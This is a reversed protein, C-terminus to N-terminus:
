PCPRSNGRGHSHSAALCMSAKAETLRLAQEAAQGTKEGAREEEGGRGEGQLKAHALVLVATTERSRRQTAADMEGGEGRRWGMAVAPVFSLAAVVVDFCRCLVQVVNCLPM